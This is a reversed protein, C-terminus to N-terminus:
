QDSPPLSKMARWVTRKHSSDWVELVPRYVPRGMGQVKMLEIGILLGGAADSVTLGSKEPNVAVTVESQDGSQQGLGLAVSGTRDIALKM